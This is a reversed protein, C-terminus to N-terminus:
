NANSKEPVTLLQLKIWGKLTLLVIDHEPQTESSICQSQKHMLSKAKESLFMIKLKFSFYFVFSFIAKRRNQLMMIVSQPDGLPQFYSMLNTKGQNHNICNNGSLRASTM